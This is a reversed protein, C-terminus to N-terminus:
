VEQSTEARHEATLRGCTGRTASCGTCFKGHVAVLNGSNYVFRYGSIADRISSIASQIPNM